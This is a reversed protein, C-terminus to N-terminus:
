AEVGNVLYIGARKLNLEAAATIATSSGTLLSGKIFTGGVYVTAVVDDNGAEVDEALIVESNGITGSKALTYTGDGDNALLSGRKLTDSAEPTVTAHAVRQERADAVVFDNAEFSLM